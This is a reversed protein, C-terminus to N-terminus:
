PLAVLKSGCFRVTVAWSFVSASCFAMLYSESTIAVPVVDLEGSQVMLSLWSALRAAIWANCLSSGLAEVTRIAPAPGTPTSVAPSIAEAYGLALTVSVDAESRTNGLCNTSRLALAFSASSFSPTITLVFVPSASGIALSSVLGTLSLSPEESEGSTKILAVPARFIFVSHSGANLTDVDNSINSLARM